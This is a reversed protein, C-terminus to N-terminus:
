RICFWDDVAVVDFSAMGAPSEIERAEKWLIGLIEIQYRLCFEM